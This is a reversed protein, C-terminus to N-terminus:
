KRTFYKVYDANATEKKEKKAHYQTQLAHDQAAMIESKTEAKLIEEQCGYSHSKKM